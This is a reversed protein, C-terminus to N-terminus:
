KGCQRYSCRTTVIFNRCDMLGNCTSIVCVTNDLMLMLCDSKTIANSSCSWFKRDLKCFRMCISFELRLSLGITQLCRVKLIDGICSELLSKSDVWLISNYSLPLNHYVDSEVKQSASCNLEMSSLRAAENARIFLSLPSLLMTISQYIPTEPVYVCYPYYWETLYM